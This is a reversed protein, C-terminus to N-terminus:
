KETLAKDLKDEVRVLTSTLAKQYAVFDTKTVYNEAIKLELADVRRDMGDFKRSTMGLVTFVGSAIFVFLYEPM